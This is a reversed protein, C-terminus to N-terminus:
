VFYSARVISVCKHYQQPLTYPATSGKVWYLCQCVITYLLVPRVMSYGDLYLRFKMFFTMEKFFFLINKAPCTKSKTNWFNEYYGNITQIMFKIAMNQVVEMLAYNLFGFMIVCPSGYISIRLKIFSPSFIFILPMGNNYLYSCFVFLEM